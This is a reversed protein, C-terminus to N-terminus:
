LRLNSQLYPLELPPLSGIFFGVKVLIRNNLKSQAFHWNLGYVAKLCCFPAKKLTSPSEFFSPWKSLFKSFVREEEVHLPTFRSRMWMFLLFWNLHTPCRGGLSRGQSANHTQRVPLLGLLLSLACWLCSPSRCASVWRHPLPPQAQFQQQFESQSGLLAVSSSSLHIDNYLKLIVSFYYITFLKKLLKRKQYQSSWSFDNWFTITEKSNEWWKKRIEDMKMINIVTGHLCVLVILFHIASLMTVQDSLSSMVHRLTCPNSKEM